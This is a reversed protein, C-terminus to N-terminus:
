RFIFEKKALKGGELEACTTIKMGVKRLVLQVHVIIKEELDLKRNVIEMVSLLNKVDIVFEQFM